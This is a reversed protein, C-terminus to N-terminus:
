PGGAGARSRDRCRLTEINVFDALLRRFAVDKRHKRVNIQGFRPGSTSKAHSKGLTKKIVIREKPNERHM